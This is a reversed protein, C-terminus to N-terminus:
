TFGFLRLNNFVFLFFRLEYAATKISISRVVDDNLSLGDQKCITYRVRTTHGHKNTDVLRSVKGKKVWVSLM